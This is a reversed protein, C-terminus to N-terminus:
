SAPPRPLATLAPQIHAESQRSMHIRRAQLFAGAILILFFVGVVKQLAPDDPGTFLPADVPLRTFSENLAPITHLFLTVSYGIARVYDTARGFLRLKEAVVAAGLVVLTALGLAHANSFGGHRFIGFGTVCTLVTMWVYLRGARSALAIEGHRWLAVLAAFVAILSIATHVMGLVTLGFM